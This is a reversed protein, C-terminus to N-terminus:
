RRFWQRAVTKNGAADVCKARLKIWKSEIELMGDDYEIEPPFGREWEIIQGDTVTVPRYWWVKLKLRTLEPAPDTDDTCTAEIEFLDGGLPILDLNIEPPTTDVDPAPTCSIAWFVEAEGAIDNTTWGVSYSGDSPIEYTVVGPIGATLTAAGTVSVEIQTPNGSSVGTVEIRIEEGGTFAAAPLMPTEDYPDGSDWFPNNLEDCGASPAAAFVAGAPVAVMVSAVMLLAMVRRM